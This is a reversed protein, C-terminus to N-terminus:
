VRAIGAQVENYNAIYKEEFHDNCLSPRYHGEFDFHEDKLKVFAIWLKRRQVDFPFPRLNKRNHCNAALCTVDM